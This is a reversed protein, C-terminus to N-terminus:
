IKVFYEQLKSKPTDDHISFRRIEGSEDEFVYITMSDYRSYTQNKFRMIEDENFLDLWFGKADKLVKYKASLVFDDMSDKPSIASIIKAIINKM